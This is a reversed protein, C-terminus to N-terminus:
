DRGLMGRKLSGDVPSDGLWVSLLARQFDPSEINVKQIGNIEVRTMNDPLFDIVVVDGQVTDGFASNFTNIENDLEALEADSSNDEFGERWASQMKKQEIESYLFHLIVRKPSSDMIVEISNGSREALYLAGVYIDFFFKRRVGAGNLVLTIDSGDQLVTEPIEVGNVDLATVSTSTLSLILTLINATLGKM